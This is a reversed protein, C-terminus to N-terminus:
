DVLDADDVLFSGQGLSRHPRAADHLGQLGLTLVGHQGDQGRGVVERERQCPMVGLSTPIFWVGAATCVVVSM